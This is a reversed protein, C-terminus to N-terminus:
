RNGTKLTSTDLDNRQRAISAARSFNKLLQEVLYESGEWILCPVPKDGSGV